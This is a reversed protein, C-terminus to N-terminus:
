RSQMFEALKRPDYSTRSYRIKEGELSFYDIAIWSGVQPVNTSFELMVFAKNNGYLADLVKVGKTMPSFQAAMARFEDPNSFSAMPGDFTFDKAFLFKSTDGRAGRKM